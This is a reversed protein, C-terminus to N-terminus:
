KTLLPIEKVLFERVKLLDDTIPLLNVKEFINQDLTKNAISSIKAYWELTYLHGFRNAQQELTSDNREIAIRRMLEVCCVLSYGMKLPLSAKEFSPVREGDGKIIKYCGLKKTCRIIDDFYKPSLFSMLDLSDEENVRLEQLLRGLLRMKQSILNGKRLGQSKILASGLTTILEDERVIDTIDDNQMSSLVLAKLEKSAGSSVKNTFFILDSQMSCDHNKQNPDKFECHKVYQWMETKTVFGLCHPCPRYSAPDVVDHKSPRRWAVLEGGVQLQHLQHRM